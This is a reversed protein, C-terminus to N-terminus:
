AGCWYEGVSVLHGSELRLVSLAHSEIGWSQVFLELVGNGDLDVAGLLMFSQWSQEYIRVLERGPGGRRLYLASASFAFDDESLAHLVVLQDPLGDGDLDLELSQLLEPPSSPQEPLSQLWTSFAAFFPESDVTDSPPVADLTLYHQSEPMSLLPTGDPIPENLSAAHFMEGAALCFVPSYPGLKLSGARPNAVSSFPRRCQPDDTHLWAANNHDYCALPLAVFSLEDSETQQYACDMWAESPSDADLGACAAPVVTSMSVYLVAPGRPAPPTAIPEDTTKPAPASCAMLSAACLLLLSRKMSMDLRM